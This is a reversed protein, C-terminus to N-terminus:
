GEFRVLRVELVVVSSDQALLDLSLVAEHLLLIGVNCTQVGGRTRWSASSCLTLVQQKLCRHRCHPQVGTRVSQRGLSLPVTLQGICRDKCCVSFARLVERVCERVM